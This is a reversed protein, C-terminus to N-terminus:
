GGSKELQEARSKEDASVYRSGDGKNQDDFRAEQAIRMAQVAQNSRESGDEAFAATCSLTVAAFVMSKILNM